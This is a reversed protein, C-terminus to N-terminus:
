RKVILVKYKFIKSLAEKVTHWKNIVKISKDDVKIWYTKDSKEGTYWSYEKVIVKILGDKKLRQEYPNDAYESIVGCKTETGLYTYETNYSIDYDDCNFKIKMGPKLDVM